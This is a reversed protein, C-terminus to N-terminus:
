EDEDDLDEDAVGLEELTGKVLLGGCDDCRLSKEATLDYEIYCNLCSYTGTHTKFHKMTTDGFTLKRTLSIPSPLPLPAPSGTNEPVQLVPTAAPANTKEAQRLMWQGYLSPMPIRGYEAVILRQEKCHPCWSDDGNVLEDDVL